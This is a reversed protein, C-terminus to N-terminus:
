SVSKKKNVLKLFCGDEKVLQSSNFRNLSNVSVEFTVDKQKEKNNNQKKKDTLRCSLSVLFKVPLLAKKATM